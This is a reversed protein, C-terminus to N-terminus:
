FLTSCIILAKAYEGLLFLSIFSLMILLSSVHTLSHTSIGCLAETNSHRFRGIRIVFLVTFQVFAHQPKVSMRQVSVSFMTLMTAHPLGYSLVNYFFM